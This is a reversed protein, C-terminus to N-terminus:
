IMIIGTERELAALEDYLRDYEVNPIIEESKVYYAAAAKGLYDVLEKIRNKKDSKDLKKEM